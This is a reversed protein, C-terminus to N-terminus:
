VVKLLELLDGYYTLLLECIECTLLMLLLIQCRNSHTVKRVAEAGLNIADNLVGEFVLGKNLM